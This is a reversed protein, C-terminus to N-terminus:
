ENNGGTLCYVECLKTNGAARMIDERTVASIEAAEDEERTGPLLIASLYKDAFAGPSDELAKLLGCLYKKTDSLTEDSFEGRSAKLLETTIAEKAMVTKGNDVGSEVIMINKSKVYSSSCYYCLSMEERVTKFLMSFPTGGYLASLVKLVAPREKPLSYILVEKAQGVSMKESRELVGNFIFESNKPTIPTRDAIGSFAATFKEEIAKTNDPGDYIIEVAATKLATEYNKYLKEPTVSDIGELSGSSSVAFPTDRFLVEISKRLAYRRKDNIESLIEEKLNEKQTETEAALFAEGDTKPEMIVGLLLDSAKSAITEGDVGANSNLFSATLSLVQMDGIKSTEDYLAAGYLDSLTRNLESFSEFRKSNMRLYAFILAYDTATSSSLPLVFNVSLRGTKYKDTKIHSFFVGKGIEKRSIEM